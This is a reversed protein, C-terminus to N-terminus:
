SPPGDPPVDVADFREADLFYKVSLLPHDAMTVYVVAFRGEGIVVGRGGPFDRGRYSAQKFPPDLPNSRIKELDAEVLNRTGEDLTDLIPVIIRKWSIEIWRFNPQHGPM